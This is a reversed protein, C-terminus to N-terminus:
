LSLWIFLIFLSTGLPTVCSAHTVTNHCAGRSVHCLTVHCRALTLRTVIIGDSSYCISDVGPGQVTIPWCLESEGRIPWWEALDGRRVCKDLISLNITLSVVLEINPLKPSSDFCLCALSTMDKVIFPQPSLHKDFTSWAIFIPTKFMGAGTLIDSSKQTMLVDLSHKQLNKDIKALVQNNINKQFYLSIYHKLKEINWVNLKFLLIRM